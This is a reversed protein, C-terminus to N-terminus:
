GRYRNWTSSDCIILVCGKITLKDGALSIDVDYTEGQEPDYIKGRWRNTGVARWGEFLPLGLIPRNRLKPDENGKDTQPRGQADNPESIWVINGCLGQKPPACNVIEVRGKNNETWWIGFIAQSQAGAPPTAVLTAATAAALARPIPM